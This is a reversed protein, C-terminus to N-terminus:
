CECLKKLERVGFGLVRFDSVELGWGQVGLSSLQPVFIHELM